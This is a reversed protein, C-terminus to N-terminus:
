FLHSRCLEWKVRLEVLIREYRQYAVASGVMYICLYFFVMIFYIVRSLIVWMQVTPPPEVKGVRGLCGQECM